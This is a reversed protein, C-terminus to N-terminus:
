LPSYVHDEVFLLYISAEHRNALGQLSILLAQRPLDGAAEWDGSIDIVTVDRVNTAPTGASLTSHIGSLLIWCCIHSIRQQM